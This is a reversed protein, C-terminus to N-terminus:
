DRFKRQIFDKVILVLGFLSGLSYALIILHHMGWVLVSLSLKRSLHWSLILTLSLYLTLPFLTISTGTSACLILLYFLFILPALYIPEFSKPYHFFSLIRHKGSSFVAKFLPLLQKKKEHYVYLESRFHFDQSIPKLMDIFVNEENRFFREDFLFGYDRFVASKVWLNCLIFESGNALHGQIPIPSHRYRTHATCLPSQQTLGLVHQFLTGERPVLDPGGLLTPSLQLHVFAKQLYDEPLLVDDDLFLIYDGLQDLKKLVYNRAAAPSIPSALLHYIVKDGLSQLYSEAHPDNGNVVIHAQPNLGSPAQSFLSDLCKKLSHVRNHTVIIVSVQM